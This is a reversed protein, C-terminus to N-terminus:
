CSTWPCRTVLREYPDARVGRRVCNSFFLSVRQYICGNTWVGEPSPPAVTVFSGGVEIGVLDVLWILAHVLDPAELEMSTQPWSWEEM